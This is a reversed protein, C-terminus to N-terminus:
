KVQRGQNKPVVNFILSWFNLSKKNWEGRMSNTFLEVIDKKSYIKFLERVAEKTGLNLVNIIIRRKDRKLDIKDTDYSWLFPKFLPPITKKKAFFNLKKLTFM